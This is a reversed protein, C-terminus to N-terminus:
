LVLSQAQILRRQGEKAFLTDSVFINGITFEETSPKSAM